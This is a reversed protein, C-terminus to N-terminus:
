WTENMPRLEMEQTWASPDQLHLQYFTEACADPALMSGESVAGEVDVGMIDGLRSGGVGGDIIVHSVHLGEPGFERAMSQALMRVGAKGQAFAIYPPKGRMAGTAGTFILTGRGPLMRRAAERGVVFSVGMNMEWMYTIFELSMERMDKGTPPPMNPGQNQCVFKLEGLGCAVDFGAIVEKEMLTMDSSAVGFGASAGISDMAIVTGSGGDAEIAALTADMTAQTRGMMVVHFGEDAMKKACAGGIGTLPGVGVM